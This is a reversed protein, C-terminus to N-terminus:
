RRRGARQEDAWLGDLGDRRGSGAGAAPPRRSDVRDRLASAIATVAARRATEDPAALLDAALQSWPPSGPQLAAVRAATAAPVPGAPDLAALALLLAREDGLRDPREVAPRPGPSALRRDGTLRRAADIRSREPVTRLFYRRRDFAALLAALARREVVLAGRADGATLLAEARSMEGMARLMEARGRNELRGEQLEHAHAAEEVEDQVEGGSLFVVEARVMRQEAAIAQTRALWAAAATGGREALARETHMIVMQQSIAYRRDEEAVAAGAGTTEFAAGIDITYSESEGPPADPADDRAVVRYVLSEGADLGLPRLSWSVRGRLRPGDRTVDAIPVRGEGFTFSEGSGSMRVYRLELGAVAHDDTAEVEIALSLDTSPLRLDRGPRTVRVVPRADPVLTVALLRSAGAAGDGTRGIVASTTSQAPAWSREFTGPEGGRDLTVAGGGVDEVTVAALGTRVVLRLSGGAPVRVEAPDTLTIPPTRLYSPPTVTVTVTMTLADSGRDGTAHDARGAPVQPRLTWTVAAAALAVSLVAGVVAGRVPVFDAPALAAVRGDAQRTIEDRIAPSLAPMGASAVATVLLNDLGPARAEALQAVAPAAWAPHRRHTGAAIVVVAAAAALALVSAASMAPAALATVAATLAGAALAASAIWLGDRWRLRRSLAHVFAAASM